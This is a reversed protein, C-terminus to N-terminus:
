ELTRSLLLADEAPHRYYGRRRGGEAFGLGLYFARAVSNSERVELFVRRVGALVAEELAREMLCRGVGRGRRAAAVALNLIEAEGATERWAVAGALEGNQMAVVRVQIGSTEIRALEGESWHAAEASEGFLGAVAGAEAPLM